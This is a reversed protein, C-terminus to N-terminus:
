RNKAWKKRWSLVGRVRKTIGSAAWALAEGIARVNSGLPGTLLHFYITSWLSYRTSTTGVKNSSSTPQFISGIKKSAIESEEENAERIDEQLCLRCDLLFPTIYM